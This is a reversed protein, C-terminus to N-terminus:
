VYGPIMGIGKPVDVRKGHRIHPSNRYQEETKFLVYGDPDFLAGPFYTLHNYFTGKKHYLAQKANVHWEANLQRGTLGSYVRQPSRRKRPLQSNLSMHQGNTKQIRNTEEGCAFSGDALRAIRQLVSNPTDELPRAHNKLWAWVEDDIRITPM